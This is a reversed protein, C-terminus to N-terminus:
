SSAGLPTACEACVIPDGTEVDEDLCGHEAARELIPPHWAYFPGTGPADYEAAKESV